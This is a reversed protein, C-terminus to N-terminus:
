LANEKKLLLVHSYTGDKNCGTVFPKGWQLTKILQDAANIHNEEIDLHDCWEVYITKAACTAKIRQSKTNTPGIFKTSIAQM